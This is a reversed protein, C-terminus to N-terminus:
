TVPLWSSPTVSLPLTVVSRFVAVTICVPIGAAELIRQLQDAHSSDERVYSIFAHGTIM